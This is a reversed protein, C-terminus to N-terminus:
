FLGPLRTSVFSSPGTNTSNFCLRKETTISIWLVIIIQLAINGRHYVHSLLAEILAGIALPSCLGLSASSAAMSPFPSVCRSLRKTIEISHLPWREFLLTLKCIFSSRQLEVKALAQGEGLQLSRGVWQSLYNLLAWAILESVCVVIVGERNEIHM